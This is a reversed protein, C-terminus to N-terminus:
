IEKVQFLKGLLFGKKPNGNGFGDAQLIIKWVM